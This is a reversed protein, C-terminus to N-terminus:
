VRGDEDAQFGLTSFPIRVEVFWGKDTITTKGDWFGDWNDNLTNGDDSVLLDFRMAAPTIGFWKANQNDNFADVYIALTDDGSFRDRSPSHIPIGQPDSFFGGGGIYLYHEDYAARIESRQTPEGRFVPLYMTLPLPAVGGWGEDIMLGDIVIPSMLRTLELPVNGDREESIPTQMPTQAGTPSATALCAFLTARLVFM